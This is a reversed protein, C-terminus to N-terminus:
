LNPNCFEIVDLSKKTFNVVKEVVKGKLWDAESLKDVVCFSKLKLFEAFPHNQYENYGRPMNKLKNSQMFGLNNKELSKLIREFEKPKEIIKDRIVSLEDTNLQYYGSAIMGGGLGFQLYVIGNSEDKTGTRTLLGSVVEKYPTKNRSFRIDRFQRFMTKHSGLMRIKQERLENTADVLIDAFPERVYKKLDQKNEEYWARNNNEVLGQLCEFSRETIKNQKM